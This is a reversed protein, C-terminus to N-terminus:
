SLVAEELVSCVWWYSVLNLSECYHLQHKWKQPIHHMTVTHNTGLTKLFHLSRMKLRCYTWTWLLVNDWFLPYWKVLWATNYWLLISLQYHAVEICAQKYSILDKWRVKIHSIILIHLYKILFALFLLLTNLTRAVQLWLFYCGRVPVTTFTIALSCVGPLALLWM